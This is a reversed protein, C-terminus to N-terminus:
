RKTSNARINGYFSIMQRNTSSVQLTGFGGQSISLDMKSAKKKDEPIITIFWGGNKTDKVTYTFSTSQFRIGGDLDGPNASYARGYYPLDAELSDGHIKVTYESTLQRSRGGMSTATQAIFTYQRADLIAKLQEYEAKKKEEKTTQAFTTTSVLLLAPMFLRLMNRFKM